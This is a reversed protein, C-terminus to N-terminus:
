DGRVAWEVARAFDFIDQTRSNIEDIQEDTLPVYDPQLMKANRECMLCPEGPIITKWGCVGCPKVLADLAQQLLAKM